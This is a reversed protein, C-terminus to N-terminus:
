LLKHTICYEQIRRNRQDLFIHEKVLFNLYEEVTDPLGSKEFSADGMWINVSSYDESVCEQLFFFDVYGKFDVFLDYFSKDTEIVKSLPSEEGAYHRRICELTLDWRDSIRINTGRRQNMSNAHVPFIIMSGITYSRRLLHQYYEEFDEVQEYVRDMIKRNKSHSMEVIITDSTFYFDRWNLVYPANKSQLEMVQGNPLEKSWLARHYANLTPSYTDPDRGKSDSRFDFSIDIM